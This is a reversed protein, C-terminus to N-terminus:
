SFGARRPMTAASPDFSSKTDSRHHGTWGAVEHACSSHGCGTGAPVVWISIGLLRVSGAM